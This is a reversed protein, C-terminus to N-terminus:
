EKNRLASKAQAYSSLILEIEDKSLEKDKLRLGLLLWERGQVDGLADKLEKPLSDLIDGALVSIAVDEDYLAAMPVELADAIKEVKDIGPKTRGQLIRSLHGESMGIMAALQIQTIDKKRMIERIRDGIIAAM